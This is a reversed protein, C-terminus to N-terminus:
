SNPSTWLHNFVGGFVNSSSSRGPADMVRGLQQVEAPSLRLLTSVVPVLRGREEGRELTLFQRAGFCTENSSRRAETSVLSSENTWYFCVIQVGRPILSTGSM